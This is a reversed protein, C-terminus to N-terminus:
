IKRLAIADSSWVDISLSGGLWVRLQNSKTISNDRANREALNRILRHRASDSAFSGLRPSEARRASRGGLYGSKGHAAVAAYDVM